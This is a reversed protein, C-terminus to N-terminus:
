IGVKTQMFGQNLKEEMAEIAIIMEKEINFALEENWSNSPDPDVYGGEKVDPNPAM